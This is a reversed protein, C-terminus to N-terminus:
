DILIIGSQDQLDATFTCNYWLFCARNLTRRSLRSPRAPISIPLEPAEHPLFEGERGRYRRIADIM